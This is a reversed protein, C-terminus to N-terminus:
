TELKLGSFENNAVEGCAHRNRARLLGAKSFHRGRSQFLFAAASAAAKVMIM